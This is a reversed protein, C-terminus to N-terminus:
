ALQPVVVRHRRGARWVRSDEFRSVFVYLSGGSYVSVRAVFFESNSEFLFFTANGDTWLWNRYEMQFNRIQHPTLCLKNLEGRYQRVFEAVDMGDPSVGFLYGFMQAFTGDEAMEHVRVKTKGTASGKQDAGYNVFDHDIWNFVDNADALGKSGDCENLILIEDGSILKLFESKVGNVAEAIKEACVRVLSRGEKTNGNLKHISDFPVGLEELEEVLAGAFSGIWGAGRVIPHVNKKSM